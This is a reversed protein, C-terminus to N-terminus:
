ARSRAGPGHGPTRRSSDERHERVFSRMGHQQGRVNRTRKVACGPGPSCANSISTFSSGFGTGPQSAFPVLNVAMLHYIQNNCIIM